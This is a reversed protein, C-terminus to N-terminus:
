LFIVMLIFGTLSIVCSIILSLRFRDSKRKNRAMNIVMGWICILFNLFLLIKAIIIGNEFKLLSNRVSTYTSGGSSTMQFISFAVIIIIWSCISFATIMKVMTDPGRRRNKIAAM